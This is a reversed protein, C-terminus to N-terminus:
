KTNLVKFLVRANVYHCRLQSDELIESSELSLNYVSGDYKGSRGDFVETAKREYMQLVDIDAKGFRDPVSINVEVYCSKWIKGSILKKASITVRETKVEGDPVNISHFVDISFSEKCIAYIIDSIDTTTIM